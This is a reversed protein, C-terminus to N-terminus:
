RDRGKRIRELNEYMRLGERAEENTPDLDRAKRYYPAAGALDQKLFLANARDMYEQILAKRKPELASLAMRAAANVPDNEATLVKEYALIAEYYAKRKEQREAAKLMEAVAALKATDAPPVGEVPSDTAALGPEAPRKRQPLRGRRAAANGELRLELVAITQEHHLALNPDIKRALAEARRLTEIAAPVDNRLLHEKALGELDEVENRAGEEDREIERLLAEAEGRAAADLRFHDLLYQARIRAAYYQRKGLLETAKDLWDHTLVEIAARTTDKLETARAFQAASADLEPVLDAAAFLDALNYAREAAVLDPPLAARAKKKKPAGCAALGLMLMLAVRSM